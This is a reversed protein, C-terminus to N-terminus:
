ETLVAVLVRLLDELDAPVRFLNLDQVVRKQARELLGFQWINGTSVAGYLTPAPSDTWQDLAALEAALQSFGSELDANKAEVLLLRGQAELYYDVTGKLQESVMLPWEVKINIGTYHVLDMLVPAILFERRATESTLGIHPLNERLRQALDELRELPRDSRPLAWEAKMFTYGFFGLITELHASLRYYDTFNYSSDATIIDARM